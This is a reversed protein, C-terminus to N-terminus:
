PKLKAKIGNLFNKTSSVPPAVEPTVEEASPGVQNHYIELEQKLAELRVKTSMLESDLEKIKKKQNNNEMTRKVKGPVSVFQSILVGSLIALLVVFALSQNIDWFLFTVTVLATNQITFVVAILAIILALVLFIQM